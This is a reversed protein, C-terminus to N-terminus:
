HVVRGSHHAITLGNGGNGRATVGNTKAPSLKGEMGKGMSNRHLCAQSYASFSPFYPQSSLSVPFDRTRYFRSLLISSDIPTLTGQFVSRSTFTKVYLLLSRLLSCLPEERLFHREERNLPLPEMSKEEKRADPPADTGERWERADVTALKRRERKENKRVNRREGKSLLNPLFNWNQQHQLHHPLHLLHPPPHLHNM